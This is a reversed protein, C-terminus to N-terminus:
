DGYKTTLHGLYSSIFSEFHKDNTILSREWENIRLCISTRQSLRLAHMLSEPRSPVYKCPSEVMCARRIIRKTTAFFESSNGAGKRIFSRSGFPNPLPFQTENSVSDHDHDSLQMRFNM